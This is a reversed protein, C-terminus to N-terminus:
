TGPTDCPARFARLPAKDLVSFPAPVCVLDAHRTTFGHAYRPLPVRAVSRVHRKVQVVAPAANYVAVVQVDVFCVRGTFCFRHVGHTMGLRQQQRSALGCDGVRNSCVKSFVGAGARFRNSLLADTQLCSPQAYRRANCRKYQRDYKCACSTKHSHTCPLFKAFKARKHRLVPVTGTVFPLM